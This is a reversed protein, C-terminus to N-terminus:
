YFNLSKGITERTSELVKEGQPNLSGKPNLSGENNESAVTNQKKNEILLRTRSRSAKADRIM